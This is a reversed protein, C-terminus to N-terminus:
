TDQRPFYMKLKKSAYLVPLSPIGTKSKERNSQGRRRTRGNKDGCAAFWAGHLLTPNATSSSMGMAYSINLEDALDSLSFFIFPGSVPGKKMCHARQPPAPPVGGIM